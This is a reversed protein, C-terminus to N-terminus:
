ILHNYKTLIVISHTPFSHQLRELQPSLCMSNLRWTYELQYRRWLAAIAQAKPNGFHTALEKAISETSLLTGYLDFAIITKNTSTMTSSSNYNAILLAIPFHILLVRSVKFACRLHSPSTTKYKLTVYAPYTHPIPLELVRTLLVKRGRRFLSFGIPPLGTDHTGVATREAAVVQM